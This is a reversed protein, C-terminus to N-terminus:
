VNRRLKKLEMRIMGLNAKADALVIAARGGPLAGAVIAGREAEIITEDLAGIDLDDTAQGLAAFIAGLLATQAETSADGSSGSAVAGVAGREVVFAANVGAIRRISTLAGDEM